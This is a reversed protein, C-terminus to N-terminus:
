KRGGSSQMAQRLQRSEASKKAKRAEQSLSQGSAVAARKRATKGTRKPGGEKKPRSERQQRREREEARYARSLAQGRIAVEALDLKVNEEPDLYLGGPGVGYLRLRAVVRKRGGRGIEQSVLQVKLGGVVKEEHIERDVRM